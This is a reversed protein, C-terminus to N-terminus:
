RGIGTSTNGSQSFSDVVTNTIEDRDCFDLRDRQFDNIPPSNLTKLYVVDIRAMNLLEFPQIFTYKRLPFINFQISNSTM